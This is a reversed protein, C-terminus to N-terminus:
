NIIWNLSRYFFDLKFFYKNYKKVYLLLIYNKKQYLIIFYLKYKLKFIKRFLKNKFIIKYFFQGNYREFYFIWHFLGLLSFRRRLCELERYERMERKWFFHEWDRRRGFRAESNRWSKLLPARPLRESIRERERIKL